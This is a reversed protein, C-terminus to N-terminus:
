SKNSQKSVRSSRASHSFNPSTRGLDITNSMKRTQADRTKSLRAREEYRAKKELRLEHDELLKKIIPNFVTHKEKNSRERKIEEIVQNIIKSRRHQYAEHKQHLYFDQENNPMHM